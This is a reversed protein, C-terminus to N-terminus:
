SQVRVGMTGQLVKAGFMIDMRLYARMTRPESWETVTISLGTQDDTVREQKTAGDRFMPIDVFAVAMFEPHYILGQPAQVGDIDGFNATAKGFVKIEANNVPLANVTKYPGSARIPPYVRIDADATSPTVDALVVFQCLRGTSEGSVPNVSYVNAITIIDGAKLCPQDADWGDTHITSELASDSVQVHTEDMLPASTPAGSTGLAGVTHRRVNQDMHWKDIGLFKKAFLGNTTVNSITAQPNYLGKVVEQLDKHQGSSLMATRRGMPVAYDDMIEVADSYTSTASVAVGPTGVFNPIGKYALGLCYSDVFNALKHVDDRLYREYFNDMSLALDRQDYSFGVHKWQDIVLPVSRETNEQDVFVPGDQIEHSVPLRVIVTDGIKAGQVAFKGDYRKPITSVFGLDNHMRVLIEEAVMRTTLLTAM